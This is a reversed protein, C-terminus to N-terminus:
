ATRAPGREIACHRSSKRSRSITGDDGEVLLATLGTNNVHGAWNM